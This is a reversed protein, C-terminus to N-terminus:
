KSGSSGGKSQEPRLEQMWEVALDYLKNGAYQVKESNAIEPVVIIAAMEETTPILTVALVGLLASSASWKAIKRFRGLLKADNLGEATEVLWIICTTLTIMLSIVMIAISFGNITNLRTLLYMQMPTIIETKM